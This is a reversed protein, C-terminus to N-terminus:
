KSIYSIKCARNKIVEGLKDIERDQFNLKTKTCTFAVSM